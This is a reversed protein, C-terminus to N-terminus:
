EYIEEQVEDVIFFSGALAIVLICVIITWGNPLFDLKILITNLLGSGITLILAKVSKKIEPLLMALLLAYLAVGMSKTLIEPLFGGLIYGALTGTVWGAYASIELIFIFTKSLRGKQFSLVSFVEDTVGFAMMFKYRKAMKGIRTSLYASMLFHRFNVLLTTLIIGGPGMGTMLLNLAIFQSAGAFVVASFLFSELLTIGCGKSLIGFAIAAPVYGIFIPIGSKFADRVEKTM